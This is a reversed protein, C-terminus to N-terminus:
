AAQRQARRRALGAAGLSLAALGTVAASPADPVSSPGPTGVDGAAIATNVTNEYAWGNILLSQGSANTSPLTVGIWGYKFDAGSALKFGIYGTSGPSFNGVDLYYDRLLYSTSNGYVAATVHAGLAYSVANTTPFVIAVTGPETLPASVTFSRASSVYSLIFDDGGLGDVNLGVSANASPNPVTLQTSLPGSYVIEAVATPASAAAASGAFAYALLRRDLSPLRTSRSTTPTPNVPSLSCLYHWAKKPPYLRSIILSNRLM